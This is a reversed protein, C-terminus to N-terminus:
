QHKTLKKVLQKIYTIEFIQSWKFMKKGSLYDGICKETEEYSEYMIDAYIMQWPEIGLQFHYFRHYINLFKRINKRTYADSLYKKDPGLFGNYETYNKLNSNYAFYFPGRGIRSPKITYYADVYTVNLERIRDVDIQYGNICAQREIIVANTRDNAFLLNHPLTGSSMACVKATHLYCILEALSTEEPYIIKFGNNQFYSDLMEMGLETKRAKSFHMRSLFIKDHKFVKGITDCKHRANLSVTDFIRKYQNSFYNKSSYGLEPIIVEDYKTPVSVLEIKDYIGLLEFFERFNGDIVDNSDIYTMFVYKDIGTNNEFFYWLRSVSEMLFHGWHKVFYGCYIVRENKVEPADFQYVGGYVKKIGSSEIYENSNTVVGGKFDGNINKLPMITANQVRSCTLDQRSALNNEYSKKLAVAKQSYVFSYNVQM